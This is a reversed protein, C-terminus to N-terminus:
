DSYISTGRTWKGQLGREVGCEDDVKTFVLYEGPVGSVEYIGIVDACAHWSVVYEHYMLGNEFTLNIALWTPDSSNWGRAEGNEAIDFRWDIGKQTTQWFGNIDVLTTMAMPTSTPEPLEPPTESPPPPQTPVNTNTPITTPPIEEVSAGCSVIYFSILIVSVLFKPRM